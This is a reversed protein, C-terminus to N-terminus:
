TIALTFYDRDRRYLEYAEEYNWKVDEDIAREVIKIQDKYRV